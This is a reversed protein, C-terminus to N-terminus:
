AKTVSNWSRNHPPLTLLLAAAVCPSAPAAFNIAWPPGPFAWSQVSRTRGQAYLDAARKVDV